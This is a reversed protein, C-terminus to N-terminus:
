GHFLNFKKAQYAGSQYTKGQWSQCTRATASHAKTTSATSAAV